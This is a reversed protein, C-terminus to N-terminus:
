NFRLQGASCLQSQSFLSPTRALGIKASLSYDMGSMIASAVGKSLWPLGQILAHSSMPKRKRVCEGEGGAM